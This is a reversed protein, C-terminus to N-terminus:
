KYKAIYIGTVGAGKVVSEMLFFEIEPIGCHGFITAKGAVFCNIFM